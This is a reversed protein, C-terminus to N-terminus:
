KFGNAFIGLLDLLVGLCHIEVFLLFFFSDRFLLVGESIDALEQDPSSNNSSCEAILLIRPASKNYYRDRTAGIGSLHHPVM